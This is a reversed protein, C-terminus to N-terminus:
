SYLQYLRSVTARHLEADTMPTGLQKPYPDPSVIKAAAEDVSLGQQIAAKVAEIWQRVISAQERLYNKDCLEGHGPVVVDVDLEGLKKLSALWAEPDAEQLWSKKKHFVIDTTFVVREQPVYVAIGGSSHGPLSFLQITHEGLHLTMSDTFTLDALRVRYSEMLPSSQPEKSKVWGIPQERSAKALKARTAQHTILLGPFFYSGMWHDMHEETNILYRIEGRSTAQDRWQCADSPKMPTDIMVVGASTVLCGLNCATMGTEVFLNSTVQIM